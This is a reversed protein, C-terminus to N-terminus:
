GTKEKERGKRELCRDEYGCRCEGRCGLAGNMRSKLRMVAKEPRGEEKGTGM